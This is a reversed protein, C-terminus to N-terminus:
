KSISLRTAHIAHANATIHHAELHPKNMDAGEDEELEAALAVEPHGEVLRVVHLEWHVQGEEGAVVGVQEDDRQV